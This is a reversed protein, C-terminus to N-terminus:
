DEGTLYEYQDLRNKSSFVSIKADERGLDYQAQTSKIRDDLIKIQDAVTMKILNFFMKRFRVPNGDHLTTDIILLLIRNKQVNEIYGCM